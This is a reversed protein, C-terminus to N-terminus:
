TTLLQFTLTCIKTAPLHLKSMWSMYLCWRPKTDERIFLGLLAAVVTIASSKLALTHTKKAMELTKASLWCGM